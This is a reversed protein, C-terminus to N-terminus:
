VTYYLWLHLALIKLYVFFPSGMPQYAAFICVKEDIFKVWFRAIAREFPDQPLIPNNKWTEDIYELIVASEALPKGKHVLVPVKKHVPNYQLLLPSKNAIDEDIYEYEVGKLNLAIEVRRSFPSGWMGFVKVEAMIVAQVLFLRHIKQRLKQRNIGSKNAVM